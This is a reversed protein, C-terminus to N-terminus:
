ECYGLSSECLLLKDDNDFEMGIQYGGRSTRSWRVVDDITPVYMQIGDHATILRTRQYEPVKDRAFFTHSNEGDWFEESEYFRIKDIRDPFKNAIIEIEKKSSMVCPFCGVRRAGYDYLANRPVNYKSLYSWVEDISWNLLPRYVECAYYDDFGRDSLKSRAESEEARVGSHLIVPCYRMVQKIYKQTVEMKLYQTCFRARASPFRGKKKALAYFDLPPYLWQIPHVERSIMRIYDYTIEDENGTDCFSAIIRRKDYGSEHIAWLLLATSDKGGSIGFHYIPDIFARAQREHPNPAPNM